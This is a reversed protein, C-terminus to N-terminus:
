AAGSWSIYDALTAVTGIPTRMQGDAGLDVKWDGAQWVLDVLQALRAGNSAEIVIDVAATSGDYAAIRFAVIEYRVASTGSAVRSDLDALAADRGAGPVSLRDTMPRVLSPTSGSAMVNAAALLAGEPTRAFCHRLGDDDVMGPGSTESNPAPTTGVLEWSVAAPPQTITGELAVDDLGCESDPAVAPAATTPTTAETPTSTAQPTSPSCGAMALAAVLAASATTLVSRLSRSM